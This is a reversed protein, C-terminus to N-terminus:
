PKAIGDPSIVAAQIQALKSVITKAQRKTLDLQASSRLVGFQILLEAKYNSVCSEWTQKKHNYRDIQYHDVDVVTPVGGSFNITTNTGAGHGLVGAQSRNSQQDRLPVRLSKLAYLAAFPRM